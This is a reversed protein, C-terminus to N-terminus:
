PEPIFYPLIYSNGIGGYRQATAALQDLFIVHPVNKLCLREWPPTKEIASLPNTLTTVMWGPFGTSCGLLVVPYPIPPLKGTVFGMILTKFLAFAIEQGIDLSPEGPKLKLDIKLTLKSFISLFQKAPAAEVVLMVAKLATEAALLGNRAYATAAAKIDPERIDWIDTGLVAKMLVLTKQIKNITQPDLQETKSDAYSILEELIIAFTLDVAAGILPEAISSVMQPTITVPPVGPPLPPLRLKVKFLSNKVDKIIQKLPSPALPYPVANPWGPVPIANGALQLTIDLGSAVAQAMLDKSRPLRNGLNIRLSFAREFQDEVAQSDLLSSLTAIGAIVLMMWPPIPLIAINSRCPFPLVAPILTIPDEIWGLKKPDIKKVAEDIVKKLNKIIIKVREKKILDVDLNQRQLRAELQAIEIDMDAVIKKGSATDLVALAERKIIEGVNVTSVDIKIGAKKMALIREKMSLIDNVLEIGLKKDNTKPITIPDFDIMKVATETVQTKVETVFEGLITPIEPSNLEFARNLKERLNKLKVRKELREASLNNEGADLKDIQAKVKKRIDDIYTKISDPKNNNVNSDVAPLAKMPIKLFPIREILSKELFKPWMLSRSPVTVIGKPSTLFAAELNEDLFLLYPAVTFPPCYTLWLVFQGAPTTLTLLHKWLIPFPISIMPDPIGLALTPLVGPPAPV